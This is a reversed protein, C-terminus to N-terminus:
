PTGGPTRLLTRHEIDPIQGDGCDHAEGWRAIEERPGVQEARCTWCYAETIPEAAAVVASHAPCLGVIVVADEAAPTSLDWGRDGLEALRHVADNVVVSDSGGCRRCRAIVLVATAISLTM